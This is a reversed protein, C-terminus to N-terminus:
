VNKIKQVNFGTAIHARNITGRVRCMKIKRVNLGVHAIKNVCKVGFNKSNKHHAQRLVGREKDTPRGEGGRCVLTYQIMIHIIICIYMTSLIVKGKTNSPRSRHQIKITGKKEM